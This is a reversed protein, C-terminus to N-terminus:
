PSEPCSHVCAELVLAEQSMRSSARHLHRNKTKKKDHTKFAAKPWLLFAALMFAGDTGQARAPSRFSLKVVTICAYKELGAAGRPRWQCSLSGQCPKWLLCSGLGCSLAATSGLAGTGVASIILNGHVSTGRCRHAEPKWGVLECDRGTVAPSRRSDSPM